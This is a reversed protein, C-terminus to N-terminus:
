FCASVRGIPGIQLLFCARRRGPGTPRNSVPQPMYASSLNLSSRSLDHDASRWERGCLEDHAYQEGQASSFHESSLPMRHLLSKFRLSAFTAFFVPNLGPPMSEDNTIQAMQAIPPGNKLWPHCRNDHITTRTIQAIPPPHLRGCAV